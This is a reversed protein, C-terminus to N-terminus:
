IQSSLHSELKEFADNWGQIAGDRFEKSPFGTHHFIMRTTGENEELSISIKTKSNPVGVRSQTYVLKDPQSIEKYEGTMVYEPGDGS